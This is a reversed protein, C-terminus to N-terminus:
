LLSYLSILNCAFMELLVTNVIDSFLDSVTLIAPTRM